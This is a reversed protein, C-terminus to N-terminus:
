RVFGREKGAGGFRACAGIRQGIRQFPRLGSEPMFLPRLGSEPMFLPRLGGAAM